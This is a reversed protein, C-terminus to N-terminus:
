AHRRRPERFSHRESGAAAYRGCLFVLPEDDLLPSPPPRYSKKFFILQGAKAEFWDMEGLSSCGAARVVILLMSTAPRTITRPCTWTSASSAAARRRSTQNLRTDILMTDASGPFNKAIANIDFVGSMRTIRAPDVVRGTGEGQSATALLAVCVLGALASM